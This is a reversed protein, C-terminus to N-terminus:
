REKEGVAVAVAKPQKLEFDRLCLRLVSKGSILLRTESKPFTYGCESCVTKKSYTM